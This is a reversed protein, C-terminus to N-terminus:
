KRFSELIERAVDKGWLGFAIGGAITLMAVFWTLIIQTISNSIGAKDLVVMLTFFLIIM